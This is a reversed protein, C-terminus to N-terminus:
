PSFDSVEKFYSNVFWVSVRINFVCVSQHQSIEESKLMVHCMLLLHCVDLRWWEGNVSLCRDLRSVLFFHKDLTQLRSTVTQKMDFDSAFWMSALHKKFSWLFHCGSPLHPSCPPQDTVEGAVATYGSVFGAPLILGPMITSHLLLAVTSLLHGVVTGCCLEATVTIWNTMSLAGHMVWSLTWNKLLTPWSLTDTRKPLLLAHCMTMWLPCAQTDWISSTTLMQRAMVSLVAGYERRHQNMIIIIIMM